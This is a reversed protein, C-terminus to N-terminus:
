YQIVVLNPPLSFKAFQHNTVLGDFLFSKKNNEYRIDLSKMATISTPKSLCFTAKHINSLCVKSTTGHM